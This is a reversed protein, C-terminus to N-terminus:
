QLEDDSMQVCDPCSVRVTSIHVHQTVHSPASKDVKLESDSLLVVRTYEEAERAIQEIVRPHAEQDDPLVLDFAIRVRTSM